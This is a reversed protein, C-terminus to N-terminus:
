RISTSQRVDGGRRREGDSYIPVSNELYSSFSLDAMWVGLPNEQNRQQELCKESRTTASFSFSLIEYAAM